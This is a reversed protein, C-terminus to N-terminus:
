LALSKSMRKRSSVCLYALLGEMTVQWHYPQELPEVEITVILPIHSVIHTSLKYMCRIQVQLQSKDNDVVENAANPVSQNSAQADSVGKLSAPQSVDTEATM